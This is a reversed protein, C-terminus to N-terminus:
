SRPSSLPRSEETSRRASSEQLLTLLLPTHSTAAKGMEALTLESLTPATLSPPSGYVGCDQGPLLSLRDKLVSLLALEVPNLAGDHNTPM